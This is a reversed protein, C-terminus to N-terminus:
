SSAARLAAAATEPPVPNIYFGSGWEFGAFEARRPLIEVHWHFHELEPSRCPATHLVLNYALGPLVRELRRLTEGLVAALAADQAADGREFASAHAAPLIWTEYPFRPAYPELVVCGDRALVLRPGAPPGLEQAAIACFVCREKLEFYRLAGDLEEQVQLPLIPTAILQAHPHELSAGAPAGHNKFILVYRVRPDAHLEAMRRRCVALVAAVQAAELEALGREHDPSEVIVEHAGVGNMRDYLGETRRELEGERALAPFRNPVVRLTWDPGDARGGGPRLAFIEPPTEAENGPCFPCGQPGRAATVSVFEYPRRAREPSLIVWRGAVPDKRLEPM